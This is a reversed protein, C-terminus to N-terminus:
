CCSHAAPPAEAARGRHRAVPANRNHLRVLCSVLLVTRRPQLRRDNLPVLTLYGSTPQPAQQGLVTRSFWLQARERWSPGEKNYESEYPPRGVCVRPTLRGCGATCCSLHCRLQRTPRM